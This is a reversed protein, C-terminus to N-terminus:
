YKGLVKVKSKTENKGQSDMMREIRNQLQRTEQLTHWGQFIEKLSKEVRSAKTEQTISKLTQEILRIIKEERAELGAMLSEYEKTNFDM